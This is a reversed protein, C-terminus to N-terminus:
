GLLGAALAEMDELTEPEEVRHTAKAKKRKKTKEEDESDSQFWKKQKKPQEEREEEDEDDSYEADARFNALLDEGPDPLEVGADEGGEGALEAREREKRKRLREKRKEKATAKDEIDATQVVERAAEIFKQRQEEPVGKARWQEEDELEYIEHPNGEDDYVLKKGKDMLKTLKKKSQLLKERRNSDVV